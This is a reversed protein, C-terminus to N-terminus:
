GQWHRAKESGSGWLQEQPERVRRVAWGRGLLRVDEGPSPLLSWGLAPPLGSFTELMIELHMSQHYGPLLSLSVHKEKM